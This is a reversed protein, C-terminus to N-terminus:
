LVLPGGSPRIRLSRTSLSDVVVTQLRVESARSWGHPRCSSPSTTTARALFRILGSSVRWNGPIETWCTSRPSRVVTPRPDQPLGTPPPIRVHTRMNAAVPAFLAMDSDHQRATKSDHDAVPGRELEPWLVDEFDRGPVVAVRQTFLGADLDLPRTQSGKSAEPKSPCVVPCKHCQKEGVEDVRCHHGVSEAVYGPSIQERVVVLGGPRLEFPVMSVLDVRGSVAQQRGEVPRGSGEAAGRGGFPGGTAFAQLDPGAHVDSFHLKHPCVDAADRHVFPRPDQVLCLRILDQNGGRRAGSAALEPNAKWFRPM